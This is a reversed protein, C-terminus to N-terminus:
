LIAKNLLEFIDPAHKKINIPKLSRNTWAHVTQGTTILSNDCGKFVEYSFTVRSYSIQKVCTKVIVRDEYRASGKYRCTLEILPLMFGREEIKSYPMGMSKIFETRAAEFWIPYNSHHVIGMQDTEAYRVIIETESTFM